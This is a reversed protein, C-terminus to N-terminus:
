QNVMAHYNYNRVDQKNEHVVNSVNIFKKHSILAFRAGTSLSVPNLPVIVYFYIAFVM